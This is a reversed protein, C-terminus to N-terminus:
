ADHTRDNEDLARRIQSLLQPGSFPKALFSGSPADEAEAANRSHDPAYGSLYLVPLTPREARLRRTLEIGGMQPMVVDTVLADIRLAEAVRLADEGNRAEVVKYGAGELTRRLLTRVSAEDEVVLLTEDGSESSREPAPLSDAHALSTAPLYITFTAGSGEQSAVSIAGGTQKVISYVISLGLGTGKDPEKTTFFPEFLHGKLAESMGCGSDEVELAVFNNSGASEENVASPETPLGLRERQSPDLTMRRTRIALHGGDAMADRANIALNVLVQELQHADGEVFCTGSCLELALEVDEELLRQLMDSLGSVVTNVDVLKPALSQRRSFAQLRGTLTAAREAAGCVQELDERRIEVLKAVVQRRLELKKVKNKRKMM